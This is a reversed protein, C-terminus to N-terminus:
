YENNSVWTLGHTLVCQYEPILLSAARHGPSAFCVRGKGHTRTWIMPISQGDLTTTFHIEIDPQIDHFYLEDKVRFEPVKEFIKTESSVPCLDFTKVPGHDSFKGGLIGSFRDTDKFSATVSHLALVGGGGAVFDNFADLAPETIRKHHFYLVLSHFGSLDIKPLEEMSNVRAFKYGRMGSLINHLWLRGLIPPHIRGDSVILVNKPM